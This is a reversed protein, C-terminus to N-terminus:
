GVHEVLRLLLAQFASAHLAVIGGVFALVGGRLALSLLREYPTFGALPITTTGQGAVARVVRRSESRLPPTV